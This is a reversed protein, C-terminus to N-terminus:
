SNETLHVIHMRLCIIRWALEVTAKGVVCHQFSSLYKSDTGPFVTFCRQLFKSFNRATQPSM